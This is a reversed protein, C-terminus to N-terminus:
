VKKKIEQLFGICFKEIKTYVPFVGFSGTIGISKAVKEM